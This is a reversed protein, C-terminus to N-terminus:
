TNAIVAVKYGANEPVGFYETKGAGFRMTTVAATPNAGVQISCIADAHVRLLRTKGNIAASQVSSAGIAVTQEALAPQEAAPTVYGAGDRAQAVFETLYLTAM